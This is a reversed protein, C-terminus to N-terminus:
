KPLDYRRRLIPRVVVSVGDKDRVDTLYFMEAMLEAETLPPEAGAYNSTDLTFPAREPFNLRALLLIVRGPWCDDWAYESFYHAVAELDNLRDEAITRLNANPM